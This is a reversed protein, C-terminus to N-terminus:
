PGEKWLVYYFLTNGERIGLEPHEASRVENLIHLEIKREARLRLLEDHFQQITVQPVDSQAKQYLRPMEVLRDQYEVLRCLYDYNRRLVERLSPSPPQGPPPVPPSAPRPQPHDEPAEQCAAELRAIGAELTRLGDLAHRVQALAARLQHRAPATLQSLAERLGSETLRFLPQASKGSGTTEGTPEVWGREQCVHAADKVPKTKGNFLGPV